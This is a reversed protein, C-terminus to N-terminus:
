HERTPVAADQAARLQPAPDRTRACHAGILPESPTTSGRRNIIMNISGREHRLVCKIIVPADRRAWLLVSIGRHIANVYLVLM